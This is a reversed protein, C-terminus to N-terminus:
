PKRLFSANWDIHVTSYADFLPRVAADAVCKAQFARRLSKDSLFKHIARLHQLYNVTVPLSELAEKLANNLIHMHGPVQVLNPYLFLEDSDPYQVDAYRSLVRLSGDGMSKETGQDSLGGRLERRKEELQADTASEIM